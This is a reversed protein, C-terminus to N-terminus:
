PARLSELRRTLAPAEFSKPYRALFAEVARAEDAHRGLARLAKIRGSLAEPLLPGGVKAYADFTALARAASGSELELMGLSVLITRAEPSEPHAALLREYLARAGRSDGHALRERAPELLARAGPGTVDRGPEPPAIARLGGAEVDAELIRDPGAPSRLTVRHRGASVFARLPLEFPGQDDLLVRLAGQEDIELVGLTADRALDRPGLWARLRAEEGRGVADVARASGAAVSLGAGAGLLETTGGTESVAVTGELVTIRVPEGAKAELAYVTGHATAALKGAALSFSHGASRPALAAVATGRRVGVRVRTGDLSELVLESEPGTCVDIAPDITVCARGEHTVLRAGETLTKVGVRAPEGGVMVDGSAFVLESRAVPAPVPTTASAAAVVRARLSPGDTVSDHQARVFLVVGAAAALGLAALGARRAGRSSRRGPAEGPGVIRLRVGRARALVAAVSPSDDDEATALEASLEAFLALERAALPDRAAHRLRAENEEPSLAEGSAWRNQLAEFRDRTTM